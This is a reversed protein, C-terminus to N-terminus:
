RGPRCGSGTGTFRKWTNPWRHCCPPRSWRPFAPIGPASNKIWNIEPELRLIQFVNIAIGRVAGLILLNFGWNAMFAARLPTALLACVGAVVLLYVFTLFLYHRPNTM